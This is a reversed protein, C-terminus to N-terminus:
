PAGLNHGFIIKTDSLFTTPFVVLMKFKNECIFGKFCWVLDRGNPFSFQSWM